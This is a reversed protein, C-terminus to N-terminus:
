ASRQSEPKEEPKPKNKRVDLVIQRILKPPLKDLSVTPFKNM